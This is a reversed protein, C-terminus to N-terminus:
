RYRSQEYAYRYANAVPDATFDLEDDYATVPVDPDVVTLLTRGPMPEAGFLVVSPGPVWRARAAKVLAQWGPTTLKSKWFGATRPWNAIDLERVDFEGRFAGYLVVLNVEYVAHRTPLTHGAPLYHERTRVRPATSQAYLRKLVAALEARDESDAALERLFPLVRSTVTAFSLVAYLASDDLLGPGQAAVERLLARTHRAVLYEGFTAHLFEYTRSVAGRDLAESHQIFFFRGLVAGGAGRGGVPAPVDLLAALDADVDAERVSQGGRNFMACAVVSLRTLEEEVRADVAAAGSKAVERRAFETLLREYLEAEGLTRDLRYLANGVADYLAFMLLLLPQRAFTPHRLVLGLALPALNGRKFYAFNAHNWVDTWRRVHADTFPAIRLVHAGDPLEVGASVGIRGTVVVALPHGSDARRRQFEAIRVLYDSQDHASAQLLEDFGDLLLVPVADGTLRDFEAWGVDDLFEQRLVHRVQDPLDAEAPVKRLEVRLAFFDAAPLRAALVKTLVSKGTGPDGLVLLPADHAEPSTLHGALYRHLDSRFEVDDEWWDLDTPRCGQAMRAVQFDPDVYGQGVTPPGLDGSTFDSSLIPDKLGAQYARHLEARRPHPQGGVSVRALLETLGALADRSRSRGARLWWGLEPHQDAAEALLDRYRAVANDVLGEMAKALAARDDEHPPVPLLRAVDDAADAYVARVRELHADRPDGPSPPYLPVDILGVLGMTRDMSPAMEYSRDTEPLGFGTGPVLEVFAKVVLVRHVAALETTRALRSTRVRTKALLRRNLRVFEARTVLWILVQGVDSWGGDAVAGCLAIDLRALLEPHEEGLLAVADLYTTPGAM